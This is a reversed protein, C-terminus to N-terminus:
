IQSFEEKGKGYPISVKIAKRAGKRKRYVKGKKVKGMLFQYLLDSARLGLNIGKVKGMPFQYVNSKQKSILM